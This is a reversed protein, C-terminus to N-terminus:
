FKTDSIVAWKLDLSSVMKSEEFRSRRWCSYQSDTFCVTIWCDSLDEIVKCICSECAESAIVKSSSLLTRMSSFVLSRKTQLTSLYFCYAEHINIKPYSFFPVICLIEILNLRLNLLNRPVNVTYLPLNLSHHCRVFMQHGPNATRKRLKLGHACRQPEILCQFAVLICM